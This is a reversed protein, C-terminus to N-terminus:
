DKPVQKSWNRQRHTNFGAVGQLRALQKAQFHGRVFEDSVHLHGAAVDFQALSAAEIPM